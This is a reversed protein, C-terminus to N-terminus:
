ETYTEEAGTTTHENIIIIFKCYLAKGMAASVTYFGM